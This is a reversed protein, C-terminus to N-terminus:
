ELKFEEDSDKDKKYKMHLFILVGGFFLGLLVLPILSGFGDDNQVTGKKSVNKSFSLDADSYIEYSGKVSPQSKINGEVDPYVSIELVTSESSPELYIAVEKYDGPEISIPADEVDYKGNFNLVDVNYMTEEEGTNFITVSMYGGDESINFEGSAPSISVGISSASAMGFVFVSVILVLLVNKMM